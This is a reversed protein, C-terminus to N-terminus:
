PSVVIPLVTSYANSAGECHARRHEPGRLRRRVGRRRSWYFRQVDQIFEIDHADARRNSLGPSILLVPPYDDDSHVRGDRLPADLLICAIAYYAVIISSVDFYEATVATIITRGTFGASAYATGM